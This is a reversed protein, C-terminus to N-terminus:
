PSDNGDDISEIDYEKECFESDFLAFEVAESLSVVPFDIDDEKVGETVGADAYPCGEGGDTRAAGRWLNGAVISFEVRCCPCTSSHNLIWEELRMASFVNRCRGCQIIIEGVEIEDYGILCVEGPKIFIGGSLDILPLSTM